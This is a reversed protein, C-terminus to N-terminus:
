REITVNQHQHSHNLHNLEIYFKLVRFNRLSTQRRLYVIEQEALKRWKRVRSEM